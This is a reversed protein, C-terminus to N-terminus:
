DGGEITMVPGRPDGDMQTFEAASRRIISALFRFNASGQQLLSDGFEKNAAFICAFEPIIECVAGFERGPRANSPITATIRASKIPAISRLSPCELLSVSFSNLSKLQNHSSPQPSAIM